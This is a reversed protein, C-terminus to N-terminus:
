IDFILNFTGGIAHSGNKGYGPVYWANGLTNGKNYFRLRYRISWGLHLIGWVRAELGFVAEGWHNTGRIGTFKYPLTGGYVPDVLDPGDVDFKYTSFGYRIGAFIRNGSRRDKVFNYDVGVRWYPSHVKYHLDTDDDTHNSVGVGMEFIPFFKGYLNLRAAGEYQGYPTCVAMVAGAVDFSVSVGALLPLEKQAALAAAAAEKSEYQIGQVREKREPAPPASDTQAEQAHLPSSSIALLLASSFAFTRLM